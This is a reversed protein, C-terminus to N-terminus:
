SPLWRIMTLLVLLLGGSDQIDWYNYQLWCVVLENLVDAFIEKNESDHQWTSTEIIRKLFAMINKDIATHVLQDVNREPIQGEIKTSKLFLAWALAVTHVWLVLSHSKVHLFISDQSNGLQASTLQKHFDLLANLNNSDALENHTQDGTNPDVLTANADLISIISLMLIYSTQLHAHLSNVM